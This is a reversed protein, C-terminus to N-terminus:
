LLIFNVNLKRVVADPKLTNLFDNVIKERYFQFLPTGTFTDGANLFLVPIGGNSAEQRYKKVRDVSFM